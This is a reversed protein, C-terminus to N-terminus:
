VMFALKGCKSCYRPGHGKHPGDIIVHSKDVKAECCSTIGKRLCDMAYDMLKQDAEVEERSTPEYCNCEQVIHGREESGMERGTCPIRLMSGALGLEAKKAITDYVQEAKCINNVTGNFHRCVAMKSEITRM